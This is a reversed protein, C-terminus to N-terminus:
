LMVPGHKTPPKAFLQVSCLYLRLHGCKYMSPADVWTVIHCQGEPTLLPSKLSDRLLTIDWLRTTSQKGGGLAAAVHM